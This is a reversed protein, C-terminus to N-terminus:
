DQIFDKTSPIIGKMREDLELAMRLARAFAKFAAEMIHHLNEGSKIQIHVTYGMAAFGSFFVDALEFNFNGVEGRYESFNTRCFPRGSIDIVAEVLAEDLPVIAYGFRRIGKKDGLIEKISNGLVIGTDEVLHHFDVHVDGSADLVMDVLSHMAFAELMHNFFGIGTNIEYAGKGDLDIKLEIRTERTKRSFEGKRAM